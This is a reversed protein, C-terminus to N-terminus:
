SGTGAGQGNIQCSYIFSQLPNGNGERTFKGSGPISDMDGANTPPNKLISGFQPLGYYGQTNSFNYLFTTEAPQSQTQKNEQTYKEPVFLVKALGM